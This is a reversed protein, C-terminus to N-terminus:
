NSEGVNKFLKKKLNVYYRWTNNQIPTNDRKRGQHWHM